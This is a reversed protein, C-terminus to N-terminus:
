LVGRALDGELWEILEDCERVTDTFEDPSVPVEPPLLTVVFSDLLTKGAKNLLTSRWIGCYKTSQMRANAFGTLWIETTGAGLVSKLWAMDEKEIPQRTLEVMHPPNFDLVELNAEKQAASLEELIAPSSFLGEPKESPVELSKKGAKIATLVENPIPALVFKQKENEQVRWLGTLSTEEVRLAGNNASIRVEGSALTAIIFDLHKADMADFPLTLLPNEEIVIEGTQQTANEVAKQAAERISKVLKLTALAAEHETKKDLKVNEWRSAETFGKSM